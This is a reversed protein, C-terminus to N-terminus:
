CGFSFNNTRAKGLDEVSFIQEYDLIAYSAYKV